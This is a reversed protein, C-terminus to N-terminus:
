ETIETLAIRFSSRPGVIQKAIRMAEEEDKAKIEYAFRVKSKEDDASMRHTEIVDVRYKKSESDNPLPLFKENFTAQPIGLASARESLDTVVSQVITDIEEQAQQITFDRNARFNEGVVRLLRAIEERAKKNGTLGDLMTKIEDLWDLIKNDRSEMRVRMRDSGQIPRPVFEGVLEGKRNRYSNLTVDVEMSTTLLRTLQEDTMYIDCVMARDPDYVRMSIFHNHPILSGNLFVGEGGCSPRTLSATSGHAAGSFEIGKYGSM